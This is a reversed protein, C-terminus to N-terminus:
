NFDMAGGDPNGGAGAVESDLRPTRFNAVLYSIGESGTGVAEPPLYRRAIGLHRSRWQYLDRHLMEAVSKFETNGMRQALKCLGKLTAEEPPQWTAFYGAERQHSLARQKAQGLGRTLVELTQFRVSQIASADGTAERFGEFFHKVPMTDFIAWLK